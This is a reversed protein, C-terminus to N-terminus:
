EISERSEFVGQEPRELGLGACSGYTGIVKYEPMM